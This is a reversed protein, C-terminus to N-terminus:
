HCCCGGHGHDHDHGGCGCGGEEHHHGGCGCGCGAGAPVLTGDLLAQVVEDPNGGIGPVVDIGLQALSVLAGQGIGGCLVVEVSESALFQSLAEHGSGQADVIVQEKIGDPQVEYIKFQPARGFHQCVEGNEYPIAIKM